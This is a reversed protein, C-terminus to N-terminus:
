RAQRGTREGEASTSETEEPMPPEYEVPYDPRPKLMSDIWAVTDRIMRDDTRRFVPQWGPVDPHPKRAVERPLGYQILLSEAPRQYDILSWQEDDPFRELILFNTYRVRPEKYYRHHLRLRGGSDGGHCRSTACNQILWRDHVDQRFRNMAHPESMVRIEPYMARAQLDFMLRVIQLPEARLLEQRASEGAPILRNEGYRELLRTVTERTIAVKPPHEFDIEYVRIINVDADSIMQDLYARRAELRSPAGRDARSSDSSDRDKRTDRKLAVHARAIRLMRIAEGLEKQELLAELEAVALEYREEDMLWRCLALHREYMGPKLSAKYDAYLEEFRPELVLREVLERKFRVYVGEVDLLVYDFNDEVVVGTRTQGNHLVVTGERGSDPEVLRIVEIIRDEAFSRLEGDRTRVVIVEDDELLLYGMVETQRDVRVIVRPDDPGPEIESPPGVPPDTDDAEGTGVALAAIALMAVLLLAARPRTMATMISNDPRSPM